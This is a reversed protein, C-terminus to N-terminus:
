FKILVSNNGTPIKKWISGYPSIIFAPANNTSSILPTRLQAAAIKTFSRLHMVFWPNNHFTSLHSQFFVIHPNEDGINQITRYSLIESCILTAVRHTGLSAVTNNRMPTYTHQQEYTSLAKKSVFVKFITSFITPIYENFPMLFSKGRYLYEKTTLNYFLSINAIGRELRVTDGDIFYTSRFKKSLVEKNDDSLHSIFRTDEPYVIFTPVEIHAQSAKEALETTLAYVVETTSAFYASHEGEKPKPFNTTIVGAVTGKKLSTVPIAIHLVVLIAVCLLIHYIYSFHQKLASSSYLLYGLVFTLAFTGGFYAFEVFPTTSLANGLTSATFHLELTTDKSYFLLSIAYSRLLEAITLLTAFLLPRIHRHRETYFAFAVVFFCVGAVVSLILHLLGIGLLQLTGEQIWPLPYVTYLWSFSYLNFLFGFLMWHSLLTKKKKHVSTQIFLFLLAITVLTYSIELIADVM